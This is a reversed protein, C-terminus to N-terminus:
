SFLWRLRWLVTLEYWYSASLATVILCGAFLCYIRQGYLHASVLSMIALLPLFCLPSTYNRESMHMPTGYGLLVYFFPLVMVVVLLDKWDDTRKAEVLSYLWLVVMTTMLMWGIQEPAWRHFEVHVLVVGIGLPALLWLALVLSKALATWDIRM